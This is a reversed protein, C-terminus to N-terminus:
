WGRALLDKNIGPHNGSRGFEFNVDEANVNLIHISRVPHQPRLGRSPADRLTDQRPEPLRSVTPGIAKESHLCLRRVELINRVHSPPPFGIIDGLLYQNLLVLSWKGTLQSHPPTLLNPRQDSIPPKRMDKPAAIEFEEEISSTRGGGEVKGRLQLLKPVNYGLGREFRM